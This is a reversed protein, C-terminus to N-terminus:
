GLVTFASFSLGVKALAGTAAASNWREMVFGGFIHGGASRAVVVTPGKPPTVTPMLSARDPFGIGM